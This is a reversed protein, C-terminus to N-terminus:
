RSKRLQKLLGRVDADDNPMKLSRVYMCDSEGAAVVAAITIQKAASLESFDVPEM